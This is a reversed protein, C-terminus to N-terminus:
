KQNMKEKVTDDLKNVAAAGSDVIWSFLTPYKHAMFGWFGTAVVFGIGGWFIASM